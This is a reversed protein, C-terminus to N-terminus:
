KTIEEFSVEKWETIRPFVQQLAKMIREGDIRKRDQYAWDKDRIPISLYGDIDCTDRQVYGVGAERDMAAMARDFEKSAKCSHHGGMAQKLYGKGNKKPIRVALEM